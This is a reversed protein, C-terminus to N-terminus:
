YGKVYAVVDWKNDTANYVCGIYDTKGSETRSLTTIDSGFRFAGSVTSLTLTRGAGSAYHLILIKQGDVPNTPAGITNDEGASLRFTHGLSADISPAVIGGSIVVTNSFQRTSRVTGAVDLKYAPSAIGIGVAGSATISMQVANNTVFKLQGGATYNGLYFDGTGINQLYASGNVGSARYIRFEYDSGSSSHFDIYSDGNGTRHTGLEIGATGTSVGLGTAIGAGASIVGYATMGGDITFTDGPVTTNVGVRNNVADVFLVGSDFNVNASFATGTTAMRMGVSTSSHPGLVMAGTDISGGSFTVGVDGATVLPNYHGAGSSPLVRFTGSGSRQVTFGDTGQTSTTVDLKTVPSSTGVGVNGGTDIVIRDSTGGATGDYIFLKGRHTTGLGYTATGGVFVQWKRGSTETNEIAFHTEGNRTIHVQHSPTTNGLGVRDNVADVFLTGGDFNANATVALTGASSIASTNVVTSGISLSIPTLTATNTTNAVVVSAATIKTNGSSNGVFVTTTNAYVNAGAYFGSTNAVQTGITLSIPTLTATNTSNAVVLSTATYSVNGSSNAVVVSTATMRTNATTNSVVVSSTNVVVNAGLALSTVNTYAGALRADPLTGSTLSSANSTIDTSSVAVYTTGDNTYEWRDSTENWRLAVNASSGRNIEIGANETPATGSPVDANLVVINDGINLTISNIYTTTGSVTLNGSISADRVSFATTNIVTTGITLATPTLTATNTTNSVRLLAESMVVNSVANGIAFTNSTFTTNALANGLAFSTASFTTNTSTNGIAFTTGTVTAVNTTTNGVTLLTGTFTATNSSDVVLVSTGNVVTTGLTLQTATLVASNTTNSVVVGANTVVTNASTNGVLLTSVVTATNTGFTVANSTIIFGTVATLTSANLTITDLTIANAVAISPGQIKTLPM